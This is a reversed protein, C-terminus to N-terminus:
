DFDDLLEKSAVVALVSRARSLGVYALMRDRDSQLADLVVVVAEAELGKFRHITECIVGGGGLPKLDLGALPASRLRDAMERRQTLVVVQHPQLRGENVWEHLLRRVAAIAGEDSEVPVLSPEPGHVGRDALADGFVSAVVTAIPRTNRCNVTLEFPEDEIPPLWDPRYISQHSDAFVYMPGDEPDALLAGLGEFWAPAFDQGEDVVVGDVEFGNEAAAEVLNDAVTTDWWEQTPNEPFPMGASGIQWRCLGHFNHVYVNPANAFEARLHDALPRNFCTLLVRFGEVALRRAREVALLTKGTGAGGTILARRTRRCFDLFRMQEETLKLLRAEAEAVDDALVRRVQVTPALLAVMTQIQDDSLDAGMGWHETVRALAEGIEALDKRTLVLEAPAEPGLPGLNTLDPFAVAHGAPLEPLGFTGDRLYRLLAHKSATAQEFPNKIPHKGDANFSYWRAGEVKVGGGKVELVVLGHKPHILVFDAEGDGPRGERASQWAVSHMVRWSDPLKTLANFVARESSPADAAPRDPICIAM